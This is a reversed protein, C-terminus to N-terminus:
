RGVAVAAMPLLVLDGELTAGGALGLDFTAARRALRIGAYGGAFEIPTGSLAVAEFVGRTRGRGALLSASFSAGLDYLTEASDATVMREAARLAVAGASVTLLRACAADLCASHRVSAAAAGGTDFLYGAGVSVSTVSRERRRLAVKIAAGPLGVSDSLNAPSVALAGGVSIEVRDSVGFAVESLSALPM